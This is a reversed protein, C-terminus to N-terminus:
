NNSSYFDAYKSNTNSFEYYESFEESNSHNLTIEKNKINKGGM